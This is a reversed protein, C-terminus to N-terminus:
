ANAVATEGRGEGAVGVFTIRDDVGRAGSKMVRIDITTVSIMAGGYIDCVSSLPALSFSFRWPVNLETRLTAPRLQSNCV